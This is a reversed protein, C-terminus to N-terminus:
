EIRSTISALHLAGVREFKVAPQRFTVRRGLGLEFIYVGVGQQDRDPRQGAGEEPLSTLHVGALLEDPPVLDPLLSQIM